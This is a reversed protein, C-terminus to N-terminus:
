KDSFELFSLPLSTSFVIHFLGSLHRYYDRFNNAGVWYENRKKECKEEAYVFVNRKEVRPCSLITLLIRVRSEFCISNFHHSMKYTFRWITVIFYILINFLCHTDTHSCDFPVCRSRLAFPKNPIVGCSENSVTLHFCINKNSESRVIRKEKKKKKM